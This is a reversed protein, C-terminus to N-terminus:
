FSRELFKNVILSRTLIKFDDKWVLEPTPNEGMKAISKKIIDTDIFEAVASNQDLKKIEDMFGNWSRSLRHITDAGQIGRKNHNMRVREPLIDKTSRRILSRIMGHNIYQEEPVSLCFRIVRLDNTPDRDWLSYRLSLKTNVVGSKNWFYPQEYHNRRYEALNGNINGGSLDIGYQDLKEYVKTKQAFSSNIFSPFEYSTTTVAQNLFPFAEKLVLPLMISKGTSFIRCYNDLEKNLKVWKLKKALSAYYKMNLAYSGWSISHNGRAGNLLVKVGKSAAEESIGKLWFSNEFFKYPMEMIELFDNIDGLPSRGHFNLYHDEINGVHNVTEKIYPTEDAIYYKPTWDTFNEEPVYSFTLLQKNEKRLARSAFSVVSGSDLGGSLHSGVRGSSRVKETVAKNLVERFAEEYEYDSKLKLTENPPISQYKSINIRGNQITISHSPPLQEINQYVTISTDAAEVLTPIVLFQALWQENLKKEIYPLKFFPEILTSFVFRTSDRYFYLTRSGSFDRTGFLKQEKEDWIIFAFDGILHRVVAEGWRSYALLILQSDSISRRKARDIQLESFLEDRNDIIADATIVLSREHDYFPLQEGVAEPTIWQAHCGFFLNGKIWSKVKDAPFKQFTNMLGEVHDPNIPDQNLHLIGAVASM